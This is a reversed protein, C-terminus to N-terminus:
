PGLEDWERKENILGSLIWGFAPILCIFGAIFFTKGKHQKFKRYFSLILLAIGIVAFIIIVLLIAYVFLFVLAGYGEAM